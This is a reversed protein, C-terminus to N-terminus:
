ENELKNLVDLFYSPLDVEFTMKEKTRPHTLTLKKAHLYQGLNDYPKKPGYLSDSLIPKNIYALHVRIQHTRGTELVCRLYTHEKFRKLVEFHTIAEKGDDVVAMKIRNIPDRGIPAIIKGRDEQIVGISIAHYERYMEHTKLQEALALHSEDNKAVVLLGSTDKDIRHVIGPRIIGNISSLNKVQYMLGSVLTDDYHGIAPHVVLGKPKNIVVIDDDEYVIELNLNKPKVDIITELNQFEFDVIDGTKLKYSLKEEEGNVSLSVLNNQIYNRTKTTVESLYKDLRLGSYEDEVIYRPM